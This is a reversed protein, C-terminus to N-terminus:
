KEEEATSPPQPLYAMIFKALEAAAHNTSFTATHLQLWAATTAGRLKSLESQLAANEATLAEIATISASMAGDDCASSPHRSRFKDVPCPACNGTCSKGDAGCLIRLAKVLESYM